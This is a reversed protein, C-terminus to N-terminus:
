KKLIRRRKADSYVGKKPFKIVFGEKGKQGGTPHSQRFHHEKTVPHSGILAVKSTSTSKALGVGNRMDSFTKTERRLKNFTLKASSTPGSKWAQKKILKEREKKGLLMVEMAKRKKGVVGVTEVGKVNGRSVKMEDRLKRMKSTHGKITRKRNNLVIYMKRWDEARCYLIGDRYSNHVTSKTTSRAELEMKRTEDCEKEALDKWTKLLSGALKLAHSKVYYANNYKKVLKQVVKGVKTVSLLKVSIPLRQFTGLINVIRIKPNSSDVDAVRQTGWGQIEVTTTDQNLTTVTLETPETPKTLKCLALLEEGKIKVESAFDNFPINFISPRDFKSKSFDQNVLLRWWTEDLKKKHNSLTEPCELELELVFDLTLVPKTITKTQNSHLKRHADVALVQDIFTSFVTADFYSFSSADYLPLNNAITLLSLTVLSDDM